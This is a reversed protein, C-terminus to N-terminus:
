IREPILSYGLAHYARITVYKNPSKKEGFNSWTKGQYHYELSWTGASSAKDKVCELANQLRSDAGLGLDYLVECIQLIDTVYFVPFGFKWWNGSPKENWGNPYGANKPDTSLLFEIGQDLARNILPTRDAPALKSCALLVKV